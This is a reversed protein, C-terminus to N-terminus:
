ESVIQQDFAVGCKKGGALRLLKDYFGKGRGLRCGLLDFAIEPVLILDLRNLGIEACHEAPERIGLHGPRLDTALKQVQCAIYSNTSGIFRPLSVTKGDAQAKAVLPWIDMEEALPAYFLISGANKWITQQELLDRARASAALRQSETLMKLQERVRRRLWFKSDQTQSDMSSM